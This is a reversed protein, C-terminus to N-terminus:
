DPVIDTKEIEENYIIDQIFLLIYRILMLTSGLIISGYVVYMPLSLSPSQQNSVILDNIFPIGLYIILVCFIISIVYSIARLLKNARESLYIVLVDLTIHAGKKVGYSAGIFTSWIMLYRSLEEAWGITSNFFYRSVFNSFVALLMTMLLIFILNEEFISVIKDIRKSIKKLSLTSGGEEFFPM